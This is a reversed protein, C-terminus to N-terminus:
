LGTLYDRTTNSTHTMPLVHSDGLEQVLGSIHLLWYGLASLPHGDSAQELAFVDFTWSNSSTLVSELEPVPPHELPWYHENYGNCGSADSVDTSM